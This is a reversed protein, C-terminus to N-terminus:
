PYSTFLDSLSAQNAADGLLPAVSFIEEVTRVMSSHYYMISNSYGVKAKPSLVIMGIPHEGVESEDWTIFLAGNDKYVPSALIKPVETSLWKDGNNISSTGGCQAVTNHMDDCLDPTIFNYGGAAAGGAAMDTALQTYPVVHAICTAASNSPTTGVVDSFWLMPVHKPAFNGVTNIPCSGATVGEAYAHWPVHAASLLTVLHSTTTQYDSTTVTASDATITLNDGAELWIYNPESPHVAKPNDFYAEAHAGQALLGNIYPAEASGKISSWNNNEMVILFITKIRGAAVGTDGTTGTEKVGTEPTPGTEGMSAPADPTTVDAHPGGDTTPTGTEPGGPGSEQQPMFPAADLTSSGSSGGCAGVTAFATLSVLAITSPQIRM